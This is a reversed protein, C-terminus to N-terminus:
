DKQTQSLEGFLTTRKIETIDVNYFGGIMDKAGEFNVMKGGTTRGCIHRSDRTSISEALVNVTKGAYQKNCEYTIENQLEILRMIRETKIEEPVQGPMEAAKTGSRKSYVFTYAADFRVDKVLSMTEGFDENTEGPFGVIIDTTITINPVAKRIKEVLGLYHSRTYKRNMKELVRDSGSQVPLHIHKCIQGYEAIVDILEDSLDKPHSTMFRIRAIDTKECIETLLVPFTDSGGGNYSNVNQGLLTVEKFGANPLAAVEAVIKDKARSRERGRVYPVICYSCFNNCGYMINVSALLWNRRLVPLDEAIELDSDSVELIRKKDFVCKNILTPLAHINHTGIIIDVFPFTQSLKAATAEQQTMCGCVGIILNKNEQKRQKLAGINGFVRRDANERISCTNFLVLDAAARGAAPRYGLKELMGAIKESEHENMQCGYTVIHYKLSNQEIYEHLEAFNEM